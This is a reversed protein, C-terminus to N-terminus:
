LRAQRRVQLAEPDPCRLYPAKGTDLTSRGHPRDGPDSALGAAATARCPWSWAAPFM